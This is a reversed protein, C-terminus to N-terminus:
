LPHDLAAFIKKMRGRPAVFCVTMRRNDDTNAVVEVITNLGSMVKHASIIDKKHIVFTGVDRAKFALMVDGGDDQLAALRGKSIKPGNGWASPGFSASTEVLVNVM